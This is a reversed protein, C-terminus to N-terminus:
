FIWNKQLKELGMEPVLGWYFRRSGFWDQWVWLSFGKGVRHRSFGSSRLFFKM